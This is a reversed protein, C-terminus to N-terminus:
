IIYNANRCVVDLTTIKCEIYVSRRHTTSTVNFTIKKLVSLLILKLKRLSGNLNIDHMRNKFDYFSGKHDSSTANFTIAQMRNKLNYISIRYDTSMANSTIVKPM